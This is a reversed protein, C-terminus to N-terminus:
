SPRGMEFCEAQPDMPMWPRTSRTWINMAIKMDNPADLSGVKLVTMEPVHDRRTYIPSGCDACFARHLLNGSDVIKSFVRPTGQVLTFHETPVLANASAGAGSAKQCDTCHCAIIRDLRESVRYRIAGCLCGGSMTAAGEATEAM